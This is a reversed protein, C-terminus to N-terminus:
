KLETRRMARRLRKQEAKELKMQQKRKELRRSDKKMDEEKEREKEKAREKKKERRVSKKEVKRRRRLQDSKRAKEMMEKAEARAKKQKATLRYSLGAEERWHQIAEWAPYQRIQRFSIPRRSCWLSYISDAIDEEWTETSTAERALMNLQILVRWCHNLYKVLVESNAPHLPDDQIISRRKPQDYDAYKLVTFCLEAPLGKSYLISHVRDVDSRTPSYCPPLAAPRECISEQKTKSGKRISEKQITRIEDLTEYGVSGSEEYAVSMSFDEWDYGHFYLHPAQHSKGSGDVSMIVASQYGATRRYDKKISEGLGDEQQSPWLEPKCFLVNFCIYVALTQRLM